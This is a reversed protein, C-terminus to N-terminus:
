TRYEYENEEISSKVKLFNQPNKKTKMFDTILTQKMSTTMDQNSSMLNRLVDCKFDNVLNKNICKVNNNILVHSSDCSFSTDNSSFDKSSSSNNLSCCNSEIESFDDKMECNTLEYNEKEIVREYNQLFDYILKQSDMQNEYFLKDTLKKNPKGFLSRRTNLKSKNLCNNRMNIYKSIISESDM